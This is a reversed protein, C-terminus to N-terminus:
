DRDNAKRNMHKVRAYSIIDKIIDPTLPIGDVTFNIREMIEEDTLELSDIILRAEPSLVQRPENTRGVLYDISVEFIDALNELTAYEPVRRGIEYGAYASRSINLKTAMDNQTWKMRKRLLTLRKELM